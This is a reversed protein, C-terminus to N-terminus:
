LSSSKGAGKLINIVDPRLDPNNQLTLKLFNTTDSVANLFQNASQASGFGGLGPKFEGEELFSGTNFNTTDTDKGATAILIQTVSQNPNANFVQKLDPRNDFNAVLNNVNQRVLDLKFDKDRSDFTSGGFAGSILSVLGNGSGTLPSLFGGTIFDAIDLFGIPRSIEVPRAPVTSASQFLGGPVNLDFNERTPM